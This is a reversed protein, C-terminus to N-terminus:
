AHKGGLPRGGRASHVSRGKRGTEVDSRSDICVMQKQDSNRLFYFKDNVLVSQFLVQYTKVVKGTAPEFSTMRRKSTLYFKGDYVFPCSCYSNKSDYTWTVKKEDMNICVYIGDITALCVYNDNVALNNAVNNFEVSWITEGSKPNFCFLSGYKMEKYADSAEANTCAYVRDEYVVASSYTGRKQRNTWLVSGDSADLCVLDNCSSCYVRDSDTSVLTGRNVELVVKWLITGDEANVCYLNKEAPVYLKQGDVTAEVSISEKTNQVWKQKGSQVDFCYVHGDETPQCAVGGVVCPTGYANSIMESQWVLQGNGADLCLMKLDQTGVYLKSKSIAPTSCIEGTTTYLWALIDPKTPKVQEPSIIVRNGQPNVGSMPWDNTPQVNSGCSVFVMVMSVVHDM